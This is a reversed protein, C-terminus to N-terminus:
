AGGVLVALRVGAWWCRRRPTPSPALPAGLWQASTDSNLVLPKWARPHNSVCGAFTGVSWGPVQPERAPHPEAAVTVALKGAAKRTCRVGGGTVLEPFSGRVRQRGQFAVWPKLLFGFWTLGMPHGHTFFCFCLWSCGSPPQFGTEIHHRALSVQTFPQSGWTLQPGWEVIAVNWSGTFRGSCSGGAMEQVCWHTDAPKCLGGWYPVQNM